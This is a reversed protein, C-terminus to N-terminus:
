SLKEDCTVIRSRCYQALFKGIHCLAVFNTHCSFHGLFLLLNACDNEDKCYKLFDKKKLGTSSTKSGECYKLCFLKIM